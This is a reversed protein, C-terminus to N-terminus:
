RELNRQNRRKIELAAKVAERTTDYTLAEEALIREICKHVPEDPMGAPKYGIHTHDTIAIKLELVTGEGDESLRYSIVDSIENGDVVIKAANENTIIELTKAM